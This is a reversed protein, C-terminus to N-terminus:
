KRPFVKRYNERLMMFIKWSKSNEIRNIRSECDNLQCTLSENDQELNENDQQLDENDQKLKAIKSNYQEIIHEVHYLINKISQTPKNTYKLNSISKEIYPIIPKDIRSIEVQELSDNEFGNPIAYCYSYKKTNESSVSGTLKIDNYMDFLHFSIGVVEPMCLRNFISIIVKNQLQTSSRVPFHALILEKCEVTQLIEANVTPIVNHSGRAVTCKYDFFVNRSIIAKFFMEFSEDRYYHMAEFFYKEENTEEDNVLYTRWKVIHELSSDLNLIIERVNKTDNCSILFEDADLPVVWDANHENFAENSLNTIIENQYSGFTNDNNHLVISLGEAILSTIIEETKDCSNDNVLILLDSFTLAHRCFIEIIDEENKVM